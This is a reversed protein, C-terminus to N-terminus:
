FQGKKDEAIIKQHKVNRELTKLMEITVTASVEYSRSALSM